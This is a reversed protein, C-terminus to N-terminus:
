PSLVHVQAAGAVHPPAVLLAHLQEAPKVYALEEHRALRLVDHVVSASQKLRVQEAPSQTLVHGAPDESTAPAHRQLGPENLAPVPTGGHVAQAAPALAM